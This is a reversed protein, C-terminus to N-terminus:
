VLALDLVQQMNKVYHFQVGKIFTKDIEDVDKENQWCMIIEKMGARKAALIKEKIGGVPLVQGRLTIEGTMALYPKVKRGTFASTLATLMTIGASPGDKPVAGEPVHVHIVKTTFLNPDVGIKKANSQLYTLATDASEKMVNGLNGTLKMGGKGDALLVEIFLIDGGVYTWALGVAVGPMNVTKYIENSYKPQGLIKIIDPKIVSQLYYKIFKNGKLYKFSLLITTTLLVFPILQLISWSYPEKM